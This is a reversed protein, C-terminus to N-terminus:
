RVTLYHEPKIDDPIPTRYVDPNINNSWKSNGNELVAWPFLFSDVVTGEKVVLIRLDFICDNCTYHNTLDIRIAVPDVTWHDPDASFVRVTPYFPQPQGLSQFGHLNALNDPEKPIVPTYIRNLFLINDM